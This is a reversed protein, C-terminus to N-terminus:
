LAASLLVLTVAITPFGWDLVRVMMDRPVGRWWALLSGCILPVQALSLALAALPNVTAAPLKLSTWVLTPLPLVTAVPFIAGVLLFGVAIAMAVDVGLVVPLTLVGAAADGEADDIDMTFEQWMVACFVYAAPLMTQPLLATSGAALGGAVIAQSIVFAVVVNKVLPMAKLLPTHSWTALLSCAVLARLALNQLLVAALFLTVVYFMSAALLAQEPHVTGKTLPKPKQQDVGARFDFYDNILMSGAGTLASFLAVLWVLPSSLCSLSQTVLLSGALALGVEGPITLPRTMGFLERLVLTFPYPASLHRLPVPAPFETQFLTTTSVDLGTLAPRCRASQTLTETRLPLGPSERRSASAVGRVRVPMPPAPWLLASTLSSSM